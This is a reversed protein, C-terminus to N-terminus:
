PHCTRNSLSTLTTNCHCNWKTAKLTPKETCRHQNM